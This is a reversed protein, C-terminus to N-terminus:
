DLVVAFLLQTVGILISVAGFVIIMVTLVTGTPGRWFPSFHGYLDDQWQKVQKHFIIM